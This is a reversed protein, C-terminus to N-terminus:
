RREKSFNCEASTNVIQATSQLSGVKTRRYQHKFLGFCWDLSFKTHGAPLFSLTISTHRNTLTRWVRYQIVCSNIIKDLVTTQMYTCKNRELATTRVSSFHLRSVVANVGKGCDGAEDTLFKIQQLLAECNVGIFTCKRPTLFYIPGPQLPDSPYYVQQAYNFSIIRKLTM